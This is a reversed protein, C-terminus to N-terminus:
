LSKLEMLSFERPLDIDFVPKSPNPHMNDFNYLDFGQHDRVHKGRIVRVAIQSRRDVTEPALIANQREIQEILQVQELNRRAEEAKEKEYSLIDNLAWINDSNLVLERMDCRIYVLMYVDEAPSTQFVHRESCVPIPCREHTYCFVDSEAVPYVLNDKFCVWTSPTDPSLYCYSTSEELATVSSFYAGYLTYQCTGAHGSSDTLFDSLDISAPYEFKRRSEAMDKAGLNRYLRDLHIHLVPPFMDFTTRQYIDSGGDQVEHADEPSTIPVRKCMGYLGDYLSGFENVNITIEYFDEASSVTYATDTYVAATRKRGAFLTEIAGAAATNAMAGALEERVASYFERIGGSEVGHVDCKHLASTLDRTDATAGSSELQVFLQQLACELSQSAISDYTPILNITERLVQMHYFSQLLPNMYSYGPQYGLGAYGTLSYLSRKSLDDWLLGNKDKIVRIHASVRVYDDEIISRTNSGFPNHLKSLEAFNRLGPSRM